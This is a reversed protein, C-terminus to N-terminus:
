VTTTTFMYLSIKDNPQKCLILMMRKNKEYIVETKRFMWYTYINSPCSSTYLQTTVVGWMNSPKRHSWAYADDNSSCIYINPHVKENKIIHVRSSETSINHWKNNRHIVIDSYLKSRVMKWGKYRCQVQDRRKPIIVQVYKCCAVQNLDTGYTSYRHTEM